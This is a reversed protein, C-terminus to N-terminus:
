EEENENIHNGHALAGAFLTFVGLWSLVMLYISFLIDLITLKMNKNIRYVLIGSCIVGLIYIILLTIIM